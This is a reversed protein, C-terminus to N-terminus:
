EQNRSKKWFKQICKGIGAEYSCSCEYGAAKCIADNVVVTSECFRDTCFQNQNKLHTVAPCEAVELVLMDGEYGIEFVGGEDAFVKRWHKELASLGERRLQDSLPRFYTSGVQKLYEVTEDRGYNDDLYKIAYCLAGHFDKHLYVNDAATCDIVKQKANDGM